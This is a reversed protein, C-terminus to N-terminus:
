DRPEQPVRLPEIAPGGRGSEDQWTANKWDNRLWRAFLPAWGPPRIFLSVAIATRASTVAAGEGVGAASVTSCRNRQSAPHQAPVFPVVDNWSCHVAAEGSRISPILKVFLGWFGVSNSNRRM